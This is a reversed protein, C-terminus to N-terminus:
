GSVQDVSHFVYEQNPHHFFVLGRSYYKQQGQSLSIHEADESSFYFYRLFPKKILFDTWERARPSTKLNISAKSRWLFLFQYSIECQRLSIVWTSSFGKPKAYVVSTGIIWLHCLYKSTCSGFICESNNRRVSIRCFIMSCESNFTNLFWYM